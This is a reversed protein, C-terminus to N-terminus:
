SAEIVYINNIIMIKIIMCGQSIGSTTALFLQWAWNQAVAMSDYISLYNFYKRLSFYNGPEILCYWVSNLQSM